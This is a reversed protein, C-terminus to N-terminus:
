KDSREIQPSIALLQSLAMATEELALLAKGAQRASGGSAAANLSAQTMRAVLEALVARFLRAIVLTYVKARLLSALCDLLAQKELETVTQNQM